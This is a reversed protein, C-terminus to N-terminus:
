TVDTQTSEEASADVPTPFGLYYGEDTSVSGSVYIIGSTVNPLTTKPALVPIGSPNISFVVASDSDKIILPSLAAPSNIVAQNFSVATNLNITVANNTVTTNISRGAIIYDAINTISTTAVTTTVTAATAINNTGRIIKGGLNTLDKIVKGSGQSELTIIQLDNATTTRTAM